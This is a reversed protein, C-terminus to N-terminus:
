APDNARVKRAEVRQVQGCPGPMISLGESASQAQTHLHSGPAAGAYFACKAETKGFIEAKSNDGSYSRDGIVVDALARAQFAVVHGDVM